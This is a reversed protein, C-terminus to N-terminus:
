LSIIWCDLFPLNVYAAMAPPFVMLLFCSDLCLGCALEECDQAALESYPRATINSYEDILDQATRNQQIAEDVVTQNLGPITM